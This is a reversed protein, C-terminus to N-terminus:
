LKDEARGEGKGFLFPFASSRTPVAGVLDQIKSNKNSRSSRAFNYDAHLLFTTQLFM